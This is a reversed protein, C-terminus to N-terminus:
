NPYWYHYVVSCGGSDSVCSCADGVCSCTAHGVCACGSGSVCDCVCVAGAPLPSGCPLTYTTTKGNEEVTFELGEFDDSSAELDVMCSVEQKKELSFLRINGQKDGSVLFRSDPSFALVAYEEFSREALIEQTEFSYIMVTNIDPDFSWFSIYCVSEDPSLRILPYGDEYDISNIASGDLLSYFVVRQSEDNVNILIQNKGSVHFDAGEDVQWTYEEIGEEISWIKIVGDNDGSVLQNTEEIFEIRRIVAHHGVLTRELSGNPLSYVAINEGSLFAVLQGNESFVPRGSQNESSVTIIPEGDVISRLVTSSDYSYSVIFRSDPSFEVRAWDADEHVIDYLFDGDPLTYISFQNDEGVVVLYQGDPSVQLQSSEGLIGQVVFGEKEQGDPLSWAVLKRSQDLSYAYDGIPSVALSKIAEGTSDLVQCVQSDPFSWLKLFTSDEGFSLLWRSDPTFQMQAVRGNHAVAAECNWDLPETTPALTSTATPAPTNTSSPRDPTAPTADEGPSCGALAAGVMLVGGAKLLNRRSFKAKGEQWHVAYVEPEEGTAEHESTTKMTKDKM